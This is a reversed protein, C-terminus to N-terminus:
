DRRGSRGDAARDTEASPSDARRPAPAAPSIGNPTPLAEVIAVAISDADPAHTEPHPPLEAEDIENTHHSSLIISAFGVTGLFAVLALVLAVDLFVLQDTIISLAAMVGVALSTMLDIAVVRDALTPGKLLRVFALLLSLNIVALVMIMADHM